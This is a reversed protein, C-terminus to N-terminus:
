ARRGGLSTSCSIIYATACLSLFPAAPTNAASMSSRDSPTYSILADPSTSGNSASQIFAVFDPPCPNPWQHARNRAIVVESLGEGEKYKESVLAGIGGAELLV